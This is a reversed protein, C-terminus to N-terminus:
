CLLCSSPPSSSVPPPVCPFAPTGSVKVNDFNEHPPTGSLVWRASGKLGRQIAIKDYNNLYTFEDVVIRTWHFMQLPAVPLLLLVLCTLM